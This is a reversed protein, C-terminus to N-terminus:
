IEIELGPIALEPTGLTASAAHKSSLGVLKADQADGTSASCETLGFVGGTAAGLVISGLFDRFASERICQKSRENARRENNSTRAPM